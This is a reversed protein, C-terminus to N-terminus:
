KMNSFFVLIKLEEEIEFFRHEVNAKVYLVAGEKVATENQGALFKAKGSLIYYVEDHEHPQQTDESGKPLIYLGTRLKDVNLFPLYRRNGSKLEKELSAIDYFKSNMTQKKSGVRGLLRVPNTFLFLGLTAIFSRRQSM